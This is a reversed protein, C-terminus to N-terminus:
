TPVRGKRDICLPPSEPRGECPSHPSYDFCIRRRSVRIRSFSVTRADPRHMCPSHPGRQPRHSEHFAFHREGADDGRQRFEQFLARRSRRVAETDFSSSIIPLHADTLPEEALRGGRWTSLRGNGDASFAVLLFSRFRQLERRELRQSVERASGADVLATLLLGRSTYRDPPEPCEDAPGAYGNLLCFSMGCDNVAIWSGGFDGDLPAIFHRSAEGRIAAPIAPKRARREDRNFFVQYGDPERFWTLTCM